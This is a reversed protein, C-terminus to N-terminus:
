HLVDRRPYSGIAGTLHYRIEFTTQANNYPRENVNRSRWKVNVNGRKRELIYGGKSSVSGRRYEQGNESLGLVKIKAGGQLDYDRQLGNWDGSWAVQQTEVVDISTDKNLTMKVDYRQYVLARGAANAPSGVVLVAALIGILVFRRHRGSREIAM